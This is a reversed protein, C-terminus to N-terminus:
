LPCLWVRRNHVLVKMVDDLECDLPQGVKCDGNHDGEGNNNDDSYDGGGIEEEGKEMQLVQLVDDVVNDGTVPLALGGTLLLYGELKSRLTDYGPQICLRSYVCM